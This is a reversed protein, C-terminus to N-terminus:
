DVNQKNKIRARMLRTRDIFEHSRPDHYRSPWIVWPETGLDIAIILEGKQWPRSLENALSSS